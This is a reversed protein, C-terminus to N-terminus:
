RSSSWNFKELFKSAWSCWGTRKYNWANDPM